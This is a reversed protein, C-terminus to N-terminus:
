LLDIVIPTVIQQEENVPFVIGKIPLDYQGLNENAFIIATEIIDILKENEEETNKFVIGKKAIWKCNGHVSLLIEEIYESFLDLREQAHSIIGLSRSTNGETFVFSGGLVPIIDPTKFGLKKVAMKYPLKFNKDPCEVMLVDPM